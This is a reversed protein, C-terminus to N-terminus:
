RKPSQRQRRAKGGMGIKRTEKTRDDRTLLGEAKLLARLDPNHVLLARAMGLAVADAQSSIGSGSVQASLAFQARLGVVELPKISRALAGLSTAFYESALLGNVLYEGKVKAYLRVRATAAKRRGVGEVYNGQPLELQSKRKGVKSAGRTSEPASKIIKKPQIKKKNKKLAM